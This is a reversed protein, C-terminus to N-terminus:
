KKTKDQDLARRVAEMPDEEAAPVSAAGAAPAAGFGQMPDLKAGTAPGGKSGGMQQIMEGAKDIDLVKEKDLFITM